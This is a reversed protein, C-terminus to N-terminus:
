VDQSEKNEQLLQGITNITKGFIHDAEHQFILAREGSLKRSINKLMKKKTDVVQSKAIIFKYRETLYYNDVGYSLCAEAVNTKKKEDPFYKPNIIIQYSNTGNLWIFMQKFVGIQPAALGLARNELCYDIMEEGLKKIEDYEEYKIEECKINEIEEPKLLKIM